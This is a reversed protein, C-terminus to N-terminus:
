KKRGTLRQAISWFARRFYLVSGVVAAIITQLIISGAVPDVYALIVADM